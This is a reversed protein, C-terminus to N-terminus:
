QRNRPLQIGPFIKIVAATAERGHGAASAQLFMQHATAALPLPFTSDRGAELVLGLDKLLINLDATSTYDGSIVHTIRKEFSVSNGFSHTIVDYLAQPEVGRRIALAMAEAAAAMHVSVLLQNILKVTSAAGARPGVRYVNAAMAGLIGDAKDCAAARGAIILTLQGSAAAEAGGSVPADLYLLGQASLREEMAESWGPAVTSCMIFLGGPAMAAAAGDRGYLVQENQEATVVVSIVVECAQAVSAPSECAVGGECAFARAAEPRVDHVHVCHGARRLSLAMGLGMAGLGIVGVNNPLPM